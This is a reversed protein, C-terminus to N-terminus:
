NKALHYMNPRNSVEPPFTLIIIKRYSKVIDNMTTETQRM